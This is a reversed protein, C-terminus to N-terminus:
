QPIFLLIKYKNVNDPLTQNQFVSVPSFKYNAVTSACRFKIVVRRLHCFLRASCIELYLATFLLCIPPSTYLWCTTNFFVPPLIEVSFQVVDAVKRLNTIEFVAFILELCYYQYSNLM